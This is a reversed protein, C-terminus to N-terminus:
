LLEGTSGIPLLSEVDDKNVIWTTARFGEGICQDSIQPSIAENLICCGLACESPGFGNMLTPIRAGQSSCKTYSEVISRPIPEGGLLVADMMYLAESRFLCLYSPTCSMWNARSTKAFDLLDDISYKQTDSPVCMCAGQFLTMFMNEIAMDFAPAALVLVRSSSNIRMRMAHVQHGTTVAHQAIMVGKPHGTSGSTYTIYVPENSPQTAPSQAM